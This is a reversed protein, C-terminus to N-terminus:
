SRGIPQVTIATVVAEGEPVDAFESEHEQIEAVTHGILAAYLSGLNRGAITVMNTSYYITIVGSLNFHMATKYAYPFAWRDGTKFRLDLELARIVDGSAASIRSNANESLRATERTEDLIEQYSM